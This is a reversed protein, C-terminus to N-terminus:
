GVREPETADRALQTPLLILHARQETDLPSDAVAQALQDVAVDV